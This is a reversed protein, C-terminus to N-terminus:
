ADHPVMKRESRPSIEKSFVSWTKEKGTQTVRSSASPFLLNKRVEVEGLIEEMEVKSINKKIGKREKSTRHGCSSLICREM